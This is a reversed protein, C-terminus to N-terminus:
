LVRCTLEDTSYRKSDKWRTQGNKEKVFFQQFVRFTWLQVNPPGFSFQAEVNSFESASEQIQGLFVRTEYGMWSVPGEFAAVKDGAVSVSSKHTRLTGESDYEFKIMLLAELKSSLGFKKSKCEIGAVNIALAQSTFIALIALIPYKM